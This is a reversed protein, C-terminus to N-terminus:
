SITQRDHELKAMEYEKQSLERLSSVEEKIKESDQENKRTRSIIESVKNKENELEQKEIKLQEKQIFIENYEVGYKIKIKSIEEWEKNLPKLLEKREERLTELEGKLNNKQEIIDNVEQRVIKLINDRWNNLRQEEESKLRRLEDVKKALSISEDIEQKRENAKAKDLDIKKPLILM